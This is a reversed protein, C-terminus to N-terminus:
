QVTQKDTKLKKKKCISIDLDTYKYLVFHDFGLFGLDVLFCVSGVIVFREGEFKRNCTQIGGTEAQGDHLMGAAMFTLPHCAIVTSSLRHCDIVTSSLHGVTGNVFMEKHSRNMFFRLSNWGM